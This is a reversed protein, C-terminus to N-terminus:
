ENDAGEETDMEARGVVNGNYDLIRGPDKGSELRAALKRLIRAIECLMAGDAFAENETEIRLTFAM